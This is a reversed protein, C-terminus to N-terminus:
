IYYADLCKRYLIKNTSINRFVITPTLVKGYFNLHPSFKETFINHSYFVFTKWGFWKIILIKYCIHGTSKFNTQTFIWKWIQVKFPKYKKIKTQNKLRSCKQHMVKPAYFFCIFIILFFWFCALLIGKLFPLM